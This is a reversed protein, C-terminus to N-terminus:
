EGRGLGERMREYDAWVLYITYLLAAGGGAYVFGDLWKGNLAGGVLSGAVGFVLSTTATGIADEKASDSM